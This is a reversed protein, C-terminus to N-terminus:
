QKCWRIVDKAESETNFCWAYDSNAGADVPFPWNYIHDILKNCNTISAWQYNPSIM